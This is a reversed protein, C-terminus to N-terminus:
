ATSPSSWEFHDISRSLLHVAYTSLLEIRSRALSSLHHLVLQAAVEQLYFEITKTKTWRGRWAILSIDETALYLHTAGSGRLVAPTPGRSARTHPIELRDMICDWQRRYVSASGPFLKFDLPRSGYLAELFKVVFADEIKAHQRRAFRATKPNRLHIYVIDHDVLADRPLVLDQRKLNLFEAPHLMGLFGIMSVAAWFFWGWLSAIALAARMIPASIVPRCEGPEAMQWKKDIQWAPGLFGRAHPLRDQVATIAYVLLYRPHGHEYLYRGYSRLALALAQPSSAVEEFEAGLHEPLWMRFGSLCQDMRAATATSFGVSDDLPGRPARPGTGQTPPTWPGPNREVDGCLLLLLKVWRGAVKPFSAATLAMDFSECRGERLDQLWMPCEKSAGPTPRNRSPGDSRNKSSEVHLGGPYLGSGIIYGLTGQLVRSIAFSSSRGKATAGLTVRSDILGLLRHDPYHRACHKIWTKYTRCELVNIHGTKKFRYRLLEKFHLSDALEGIWDPDEHWQRWIVEDQSRAGPLKCEEFGLECLTQLKRSVPIISSQGHKHSCSGIAMRRCLPIPYSASYQSVAQGLTPVKGYIVLSSPKCKLEFECIKERTFTGQIICHDSSSKCKCTAEIGILWPKNHLWKSPKKFGSGFACFCFRSLICGLMALVRFAHMYYMVSSGPQEVSVFAGKLIAICFLFAVRRALSNQERTLPDGPRFGSPQYKSRIRPRRLTGFTFCPPGAHWERVVGRSALSLMQSFVSPDLMDAFAVRRGHIDVGPHVKLGAEEHCKSWNGEGKFLEICDFLFGERLSRPVPFFIDNLPPEFDPGFAPESGIGIEELVAAVPSALRTYFGRQESHRWLEAVVSETEDAQCIGSGHPSADMCFIKSCTRTRLNTQAVPGLISLALLENRAQRSLKFVKNAPKNQGESFVAEMIAMIPRRFMLVSVWSGVIASLLKPTAFGKCAVISSCMMLLGIRHRPASVKGAVGDVEAGLFVGSTVNRKKKKPHQVLGVTTYAQGAKAFVETDRAAADARYAARSLVQLGLHDDISLFEFFKGRPFPKRYAVREHEQLAGALQVLVQFHAQQAIEVALSDGMALAGLAIYCECNHIDPDYCSLEKLENPRFKMRICNRRARADPVQFTYYMEALDDASIRLIEHPSLQVLGILCGPALSKTYNSYSKMRGNIVVPNLILRDWVADKGVAFIGVAEEHCVTSCPFIRCAGKQDWKKALKLVEQKSCHVRGAPKKIWLSPHLRLTEPDDFASRVVPDTLYPRPDFQPSHEWKIRDAVVPKATTCDLHLHVASDSSSQEVEDNRSSSDCHDETCFAGDQNQKSSKHSSYPDLGRQLETVVDLLDVEQSVGPLERCACLLRELKDASRGLSSADFAGAICFHQVLDHIRETLAFQEESYGFGVCASPPPKSIHGLAEWNLTCIIQSVIRNLLLLLKRRRRRKPSLRQPGTWRWMPPPCPFLDGSHKVRSKVIRTSPECSFLIFDRLGIHAKMNTQLCADLVSLFSITAPSDATFSDPNFVCPKPSHTNHDSSHKGTTDESGDLCRVDEVFAGETVDSGSCDDMTGLARSMARGLRPNMTM